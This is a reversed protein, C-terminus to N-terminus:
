SKIIIENLEYVQQTRKGRIHPEVKFKRTKFSGSLVYFVEVIEDTWISEGYKDRSFKKGILDTVLTDM